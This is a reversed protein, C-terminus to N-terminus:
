AQAGPRLRKMGEYRGQWFVPVNQAGRAGGDPAPANLHEVGWLSKCAKRTDPKCIRVTRM